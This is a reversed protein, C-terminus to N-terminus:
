NFNKKIKSYIDKMVTDKQELSSEWVPKSIKKGCTSLLYAQAFDVVPLFTVNNRVNFPDFLLDRELDAQNAVPFLFYMEEKEKGGNLKESIEKLRYPILSKHYTGGIVGCNGTMSDITGTMFRNKYIPDGTFASIVSVTTAMSASPGGMKNWNGGFHTKMKWNGKNNMKEQDLGSEGLINQVFDKVLEYGKFTTEDTMESEVDVMKFRKLSGFVKEFGPIFQSNVHFLSGPGEGSTSLGCVHGVEKDSMNFYRGYRKESDVRSFYTLPLTEKIKSKILDPTIETKNKSIAYACLDELSQVFSRYRLDVYESISNVNLNLLLGATEDNLELKSSHHKNFNEIAGYLVNLSGQRSKESNLTLEPVEITKIRSRLGSEDKIFISEIRQFPDENCCGLIIKPAKIHYTVGNSQVLNMVGTQLYELFQEKMGQKDKDSSVITKIFDGFSDQFLLIGGKFFNGLSTITLHPPIVESTEIFSGFLSEEDLSGVKNCTIGEDTSSDGLVYYPDLIDYLSMINKGHKLAFTFDFDDKDNNGKMPNNKDKDKKSIGKKNEKDEKDKDIKNELTEEESSRIKSYQINLSNKVINKNKDFYNVISDMWSMVEESVKVDKKYENLIKKLENNIVDITSDSVTVM